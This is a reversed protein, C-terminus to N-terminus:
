RSLKLMTKINWTSMHVIYKTRKKTKNKEKTVKKLAQKNVLMKKLVYENILNKWKDKHSEYGIWANKM